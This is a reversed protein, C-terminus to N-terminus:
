AVEISDWTSGADVQEALEKVEDIYSKKGPLAEEFIFSITLGHFGDPNLHPKTHDLKAMKVGEIKKARM